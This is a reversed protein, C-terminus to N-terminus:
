WIGDCALVLVSHQQWNEIVFFDPVASLYQELFRDGLARSVALVACVRGRVVFGGADRVRQSEEVDDPKHDRTVRVVQVSRRPARRDSVGAHDSVSAGREASSPGGGSAAASRSQASESAGFLDDDDDGLSQSFSFDLPVRVGSTSRRPEVAGGDGDEDDGRKVKGGDGDIAANGEPQGVVAAATEDDDGGDSGSAARDALSAGGSGAAAVASESQEAGETRETRATDGEEESAESFTPVRRVFRSRPLDGAGGGDDDEVVVSGLVARSDGVNAVICVDDSLLTVLATCGGEVSEDRLLEGQTDAFAKRLARVLTRVSHAPADSGCRACRLCVTISWFFFPDICLSALLARACDFRSTRSPLHAALHQPLRRASLTAARAGGHGDFIGLLDLRVDGGLAPSLLTADEMSERVGQADAHRAVIHTLLASM